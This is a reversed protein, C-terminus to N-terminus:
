VEEVTFFTQTITSTGASSFGVYASISIKFSMSVQSNPAPDRNFFFNGGLGVRGTNPSPHPYGNVSFTYILSSNEWYSVMAIGATNGCGGWQCDVRIRKGGPIIISPTQIVTAGSTYVKTSSSVSGSNTQTHLTGKPSIRKWVGTDGSTPQWWVWDILQDMQRCTRGHQNQNWTTPRSAQNAVKFIGPNSDITLFTSAFEATKFEDTGVPQILGLVPTNTATM